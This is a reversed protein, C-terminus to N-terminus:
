PQPEGEAAPAEEPKGQLQEFSDIKWERGLKFEVAAEYTESRSLPSYASFWLAGTDDSVPQSLTSWPQAPDSGDELLGSEGWIEWYDERVFELALTRGAVVALLRARGEAVREVSDLRARSLAWRGLRGGLVEDRAERYALHGGLRGRLGSSLCRYELEPHDARIALIFTEFTQEPNRFGVTSLTEAADPPTICGSSICALGIGALTAVLRM